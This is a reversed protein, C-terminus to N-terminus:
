QLPKEWLISLSGPKSQLSVQGGYQPRTWIKASVWGLAGGAVVDSWRHKDAKVRSLATLTAAGYLYYKYTQFNEPYRDELFSVASFAIAAHGSPFSQNDSHDPRESSVFGKLVLSSLYATGVSLALQETGTTDAKQLTSGLALAPLGLALLSSGRDWASKTQAHALNFFSLTLILSGALYKLVSGKKNINLYM